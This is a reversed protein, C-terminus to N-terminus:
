GAGRRRKGKGRGLYGDVPEIDEEDGKGKKVEGRELGWAQEDIWDEGDSLEGVHGEAKCWHFVTRRLRDAQLLRVLVANLTNIFAVQKQIYSTLLSLTDSYEAPPLNYPHQQSQSQLPRTLYIPHIDHSSSSSTPSLPPTAAADPNNTEGNNTTQALARTIRRTPQAPSESVADSGAEDNDARDNTGTDKEGAESADEIEAGNEKAKGDSSAAQTTREANATEDTEANKGSAVEDTGAMTKPAKETTREASAPVKSPEADVMDTDMNPINVPVEDEQADVTQIVGSSDMTASISPADEQAGEDRKRKKGHSHEAGDEPDPRKPDFLDWDETSEVVECPVWAEDGILQRHLDKACSLNAKEKQLQENTTNIM